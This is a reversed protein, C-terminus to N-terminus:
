RSPTSPISRHFLRGSCGWGDLCFFCSWSSFSIQYWHLKKVDVWLQARQALLRLVLGALLKRLDVADGLVVALLHQRGEDFVPHTLRMEGGGGAVAVAVPAALHHVRHQGVDEAALVRQNAIVKHGAGVRQGDRQEAHQARPILHDAEGAHRVVGQM